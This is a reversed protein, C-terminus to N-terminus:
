IQPQCNIRGTQHLQSFFGPALIFGRILSLIRSKAPMMSISNANKGRNVVIETRSLQYKNRVPKMSDQYKLYAAAICKGYQASVTPMSKEYEGWVTRM